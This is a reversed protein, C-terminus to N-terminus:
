RADKTEELELIKEQLPFMEKEGEPTQHDYGLLHLLGHAFLFRLERSLPHGYREAQEKAVDLCILIEGLMRPAEGPKIKGLACKDDLFAFSIVDTPRDVGRYDRNIGHIEEKDVLSVDVEFDERIKLLSATVEALREYREGYVDYEPGFPNDFLVQM